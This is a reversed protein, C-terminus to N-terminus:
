HDSAPGLVFIVRCASLFHSQADAMQVRVAEENSIVVDASYQGSTKQAKVVLPRAEEGGVRDSRSARKLDKDYGVVGLQRAYKLDVASASYLERGGASLIRPAMSPKLDLGRADVILGTYLQPPAFTPAPLEAPPAAPPAARRAAPLVADAFEDLLELNLAVQYLGEKEQQSGPVVRAGRILGSVRTHISDSAIMANGVTTTADIQVQGVLELLNRFAAAKAARFGLLRRQAPNQIEPPALGEGYATLVRHTWDISGEVLQQDATRAQLPEVVDQAHLKVALLLAILSFSRMIM